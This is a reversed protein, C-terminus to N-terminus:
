YYVTRTRHHNVQVAPNHSLAWLYWDVQWAPVLKGCIAAAKMMRNVAHITAARIEIEADSNAPIEDGRDIASALGPDVRLVGLHRLAQPLRYDAFATLEDLNTLPPYGHSDFAIAIDLACIQARKMFYVPQGKYRTVDRFSDFNTMLLVALPWARENVSEIANMFQGDFRDLLVQGTERIIHERDDLLHLQGKGRLVDEIEARSVSLWHAPDFWKADYKAALLLSVFMAEFRHYTKGRWEFRIPDDSWFCFNLADVLLVINALQAQNGPLEALLKHETPRLEDLTVRSAWKEIATDDITILRARDVISQTSQLVIM